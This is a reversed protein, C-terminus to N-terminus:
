DEERLCRIPVATWSTYTRVQEPDEHDGLTPGPRTPLLTVGYAARGADLERGDLLVSALAEEWLLLKWGLAALDADQEFAIAAIDCQAVASSGIDDQLSAPLVQLGIAPWMRLLGVSPVFPYVKEPERLEVGNESEANIEAILDPLAQELREVVATVIPTHLRIHKM